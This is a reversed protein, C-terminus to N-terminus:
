NVGNKKNQVYKMGGFISGVIPFLFFYILGMLLVTEKILSMLSSSEKSEKALGGHFYKKTASELAAADLMKELYPVDLKVGTANESLGNKFTPNEGKLIPWKIISLTSLNYYKITSINNFDNDNAHTREFVSNILQAKKEALTLLNLQYSMHLAHPKKTQFTATKHLKASELNSSSLAASCIGVQAFASALLAINFCKAFYTTNLRM